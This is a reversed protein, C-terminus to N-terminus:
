CEWFGLQMSFFFMLALFIIKPTPDMCSTGSLVYASASYAGRTTERIFIQREWVILPLTQSSTFLVFSLSFGIFSQRQRIGVINDEVKFFLSGMVLAGVMQFSLTKRTLWQFPFRSDLLTKHATKMVLSKLTSVNEKSLVWAASVLMAVRGFFLEKTRFTNKLNRESLVLTQMAFSAAYTQPTDPNTNGIVIQEDKKLQGKRKEQQM